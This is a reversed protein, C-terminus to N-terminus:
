AQACELYKISSVRTSELKSFVDIFQYTLNLILNSKASINSINNYITYQKEADRLVTCSIIKLFELCINLAGKVVVGAQQSFDDGYVM